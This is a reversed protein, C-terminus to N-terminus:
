AGMGTMAYPELGELSPVKVNLYEALQERSCGGRYYHRFALQLFAPGLYIAQNAFYNGGRKQKQREIAHEAQRTWQAAKLVYHATDVLDADLARRLIMERSVKYQGALREVVRDDYFDLSMHKQFESAPVLVSSAFSNCFVEIARYRNTLNALYSDNNKTVGNAGHLLHGLEHFVSFAQRTKPTSNNLYIIPFESDTLSFGSIDKQRLSRKFVFVGVNTLAERWRHLASELDKWKLQDDVTVRLYQRVRLAVHQVDVTGALRIDRFILRAAPNHGETLEYLSLQTAKAERLAFRTDAPLSALEAAPLTRFSRAPEPEPPPQPFFFLAIPRHYLQYALKELQRYTPSTDGLEWKTIEHHSKGFSSAVQEISYGASERAWKLVTPNVSAVGRVM